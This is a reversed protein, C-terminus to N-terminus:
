GRRLRDDDPEGPAASLRWGESGRARFQGVALRSQKLAESAADFRGAVIVRLSRPDSLNKAFPEPFGPVLACASQSGLTMADASLAPGVGFIIAGETSFLARQQEHKDLTRGGVGGRANHYELYAMHHILAVRGSIHTAAVAAYGTIIDHGIWLDPPELGRERLWSVVEHGCAETPRSAADSAVPILEIGFDAAHRVQEDTASSLACYVQIARRRIQALAIALSYNFANIGGEGSGWATAILVIRM